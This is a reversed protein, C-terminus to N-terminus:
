AAVLAFHRQDSPISVKEFRSDEVVPEWRNRSVARRISKAAATGPARQYLLVIKANENNILAADLKGDGDFDAAGLACTDWAVRAIEPGSLLVTPAEAALTGGAILSTFFFRLIM